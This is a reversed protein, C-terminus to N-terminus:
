MAIPPGWGYAAAYRLAALELAARRGGLAAPPLDGHHVEVVAAAWREAAQELAAASRGIHQERTPDPMM